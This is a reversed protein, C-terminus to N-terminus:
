PYEARDVVVAAVGIAVLRPGGQPVEGTQGFRQERHHRLFRLIVLSREFGGFLRQAGKGRLKGRGVKGAQAALQAEEGLAVVIAASPSASSAAM